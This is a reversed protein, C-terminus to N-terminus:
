PVFRYGVGWVTELRAPSSPDREIKSRLRRMHVTVTGTDVAAEYGWVRGMLQDRSFVQRPNSALFFLLDFEKATLRQPDGDLVVERTAADIVLGDFTLRAAGVAASAAASAVALIKVDDGMHFMAWGSFFVIWIPLLVALLAFAILQLRATPLLTLGFTAVLGVGLTFAAVAFAVGIM